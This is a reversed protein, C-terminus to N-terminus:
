LYIHYYRLLVHDLMAAQFSWPGWNLKTSLNTETHLKM